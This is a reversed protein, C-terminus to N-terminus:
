ANVDSSDLNRLLLFLFFNDVVFKVDCENKYLFVIKKYSLNNNQEIFICIYIQFNWIEVWM